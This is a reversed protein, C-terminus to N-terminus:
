YGHRKRQKPPKKRHGVIILDVTWCVIMLHIPFVEFKVKEYRQAFHKIVDQVALGTFCCAIDHWPMRPSNDRNIYDTIIHM